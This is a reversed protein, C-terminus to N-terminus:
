VAMGGITQGVAGYANSSGGAVPSVAAGIVSALASGGSALVTSTNANKSVIVAVIALGIVGGIVSIALASM